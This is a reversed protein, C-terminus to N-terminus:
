HGGSGEGTKGASIRSGVTKGPSYVARPTLLVEGRGGRRRKEERGRREGEKEEKEEKRRRRIIKKEV